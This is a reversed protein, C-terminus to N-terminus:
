RFHFLKENISVFTRNNLFRISKECLHCSFLAMLQSSFVRYIKAKSVDIGTIMGDLKISITHVNIMYGVHM